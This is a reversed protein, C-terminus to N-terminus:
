AADFANKIWLPSDDGQLAIVDFRIPRDAWKPQEALLHRTAQIIRQQKQATVSGVAGGFGSHTRARVETIVLTDKDQMVLDIEGQRCRYNTLLMILGQSELHAQALREAAQGIKDTPM